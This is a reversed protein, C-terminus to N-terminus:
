PRRRLLRLILPNVGPPRTLDYRHKFILIALNGLWVGFYVWGHHSILLGVLLGV